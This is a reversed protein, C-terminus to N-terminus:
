KEEIEKEKNNNTKKHTKAKETTKDYSGLSLRLKNKELWPKVTENFLFTDWVDEIRIGNKTYGLLQTSGDRFSCSYEKGKKGEQYTVILSGREIDFRKGKYEVNKIHMRKKEKDTWFHNKFFTEMQEKSIQAVLNNEDKYEPNYIRILSNIKEIEKMTSKGKLSTVIYVGPYMEEFTVGKKSLQKMIYQNCVIIAENSKLEDSIDINYREVLHNKIINM